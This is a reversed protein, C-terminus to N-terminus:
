GASVPPPENAPAGANGGGGPVKINKGCSSCRVVRGRASSPVGLLARCTLNPCVIRITKEGM